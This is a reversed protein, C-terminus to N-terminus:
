VAAIENGIGPVVREGIPPGGSPPAGGNLEIQGEPAPVRQPGSGPTVAATDQMVSAKVKAKWAYRSANELAIPYHSEAYLVLKRYEVDSVENDTAFDLIKQIYAATAGRYVKPQKGQLIKQIAESARSLEDAKGFTDRNMAQRIEEEDYGGARLTEVTLWQPAVQARMVGDKSVRDVADRRARSKLENGQIESRSGTVTIDLESTLETDERRMEDWEVGQEGILKVMIKEPMNERLGHVYRTGIGTWMRSYTRNMLGIRDAVQQLDSFHVSALSNKDSMGQASPTIGTKLGLFNELFSFLDITGNIEPTRFEYVASQISSGPKINAPIIGDDIWKKLEAPDEFVKDDFARVGKNQRWRNTIAQNLIETMAEATPVLDDVTAKSWFNFPDEHTAFSGWPSLTSGFSEKMTSFRIWAQAERSFVIHYWEGEFLLCMETLLFVPETSERVPETPIGVSTFRNRKMETSEAVREQYTDDQGLSSIIKRVGVPDYTGTRIGDELEFKTRELNQQGKVRHRELNAGGRPEALFDFHDVVEIHSQYRPQSDQWFKVIGVGSFISLNKSGLDAAAIDFEPSFSTTEKRWSAAIKAGKRYDAQESGAFNLLPPDDIKSKLTDVFGSLIPLQYNFRGSLRKRPKMNYMDEAVRIKRLRPDRSRVCAEELRMAAKLVRNALELKKRDIPM